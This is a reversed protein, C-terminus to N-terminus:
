KEILDAVRDVIREFRPERKKQCLYAVGEIWKAVDSDWFIHPRNPMGEKWDFRFADFRGTDSFRDYVAQVTTKRVLNQRTKWFGGTIEVNEFSVKEISM